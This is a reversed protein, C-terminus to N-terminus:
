PKGEILRDAGPIGEDALARRIIPDVTGAIVVATPASEAVRPPPAPSADSSAPSPFDCAMLAVAPIIALILSRNAM